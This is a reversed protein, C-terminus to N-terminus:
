ESIVGTRYSGIRPGISRLISSTPRYNEVNKDMKMGVLHIVKGYITTAEGVVGDGKLFMVSYIDNRQIETKESDILKKLFGFILPKVLEYDPKFFTKEEEKAVSEGLRKEVEKHIAEWSKPQDFLEMGVVDKMDLFVSGVQDEFLPVQKLIEDIDKTFKDVEEMVGALNDHSSMIRDTARSAIRTSMLRHTAGGVAAWTSGQGSRSLLSSRVEIPADGGYTFKGGTHIGKSAYICRVPVEHINEKKPIIIVSSEVARPQTEKSKLVTGSRIFIPMSLSSEILVKDIHGSDKFIVGKDKAEELTIYEREEIDGIKLIPVIVGLSKESYRWPNGFKYGTENNLNGLFQEIMM